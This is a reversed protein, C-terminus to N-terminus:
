ALFGGASRYNGGLVRVRWRYALLSGADPSWLLRTHRLGARRRRGTWFAVDLGSGTGAWFAWRALLSGPPLRRARGRFGALRGDWPIRGLEADRHLFSLDTEM